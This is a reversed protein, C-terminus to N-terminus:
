RPVGWVRPAAAAVAGADPARREAHWVATLPVGFPFEVATGDELSVVVHTDPGAPHDDLWQVHEVVATLRGDPGVLRYGEDVDQSEVPLLAPLRRAAREDRYYATM